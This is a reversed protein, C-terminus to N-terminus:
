WKFMDKNCGKCNNIGTENPKDNLVKHNHRYIYYNMNPM